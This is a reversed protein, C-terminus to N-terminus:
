RINGSGSLSYNIIVSGSLGYNIIVRSDSLVDIDFNYCNCSIGGSGFNNLRGVETSEKNSAVITFMSYRSFTASEGMGFSTALKPLKARPYTSTSLAWIAIVVVLFYAIGNLIINYTISCVTREDM